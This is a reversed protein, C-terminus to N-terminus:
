TKEAGELVVWTFDQPTATSAIYGRRVFNNKSGTAEMCHNQRGSKSRRSEGKKSYAYTGFCMKRWRESNQNAPKLAKPFFSTPTKTPNITPFQVKPSVPPREFTPKGITYLTIYTTTLCVDSPYFNVKLGPAKKLPSQLYVREPKNFFSIGSLM